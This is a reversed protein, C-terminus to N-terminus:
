ESIPYASGLNWSDGFVANARPYLVVLVRSDRIRTDIIVRLGRTPHNDWSYALGPVRLVAVRVEAPTLGHKTEIKHATRDSIRLDAM